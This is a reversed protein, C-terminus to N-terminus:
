SLSLLFGRLLQPGSMERIIRKRSSRFALQGILRSGHLDFDLSFCSNEPRAQSLACEIKILIGELAIQAERRHNRSMCFRVDM